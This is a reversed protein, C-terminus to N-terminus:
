EIFYEKESIEKIKNALEENGDMLLVKEILSDIEPNISFTMNLKAYEKITNIVPKLENKVDNFQNEDSLDKTLLTDANNNFYQIYEFQKETMLVLKWVKKVTENENRVKLRGLIIQEHASRAEMLIDKTENIIEEYGIEADVIWHNREEDSSAEHYNEGFIEKLFTETQVPLYVDIDDLEFKKTEKLLKSDFVTKNIRVKSYNQIDDWRDIFLNSKVKKYYHNGGGIVNYSEKLVKIGLSIYWLDKNSVQKNLLKHIKREKSLSPTWGVIPTGDLQAQKVIPYINIHIGKCIDKNVDIIRFDATNKNGYSTYLMTYNSNNFIGEIYRNSNYENEIIESFRDLDGLTMAISVTDHNKKLSHNLYANLASDGVLIYKLNNKSCIDDIEQLLEFLIDYKTKM